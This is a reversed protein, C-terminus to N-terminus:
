DDASSNPEEDQGKRKIRFYRRITDAEKEMWGLIEDLTARHERGPYTEKMQDKLECTKAELLTEFVRRGVVYCAEGEGKYLVAKKISRNQFSFPPLGTECKSLHVEESSRNGGMQVSWTFYEGNEEVSAMIGSKKGMEPYDRKMIRISESM